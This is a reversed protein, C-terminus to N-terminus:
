VFGILAGSGLPSFPNVTRWMIAESRTIHTVGDDLVVTTGTLNAGSVVSTVTAKHAASPLLSGTTNIATMMTNKAMTKELRALIAEMTAKPTAPLSGKREEITRKLGPFIPNYCRWLAEMLGFFGAYALVQNRTESPVSDIPLYGLRRLIDRAPKYDWAAAEMIGHLAVLASDVAKGVDGGLVYCRVAESFRGDAAADNGSEIFSEPHRLGHQSYFAERGELCQACIKEMAIQDEGRCMKAMSMAIDPSNLSSCIEAAAEYFANPPPRQFILCLLQTMFYEGNVMLTQIAADLSGIALQCCAVKIPEGGIQYHRGLTGTVDTLVNRRQVQDAEGEGPITTTRAGPTSQNVYMAALQYADKMGNKLYFYVADEVQGSAMMHMACETDNEAKLKEAYRASLARWYELSSGPALALAKEWDDITLLQECCDEVRGMQLHLKAIERAQAEKKRGATRKRKQEAVLLELMMPTEEVRYIESPTESDIGQGSIMGIAIQLLERSGCPASFYKAVLPLREIVDREPGINAMLDNISVGCLKPRDGQVQPSTPDVTQLFRSTPLGALMAFQLDAVDDEMTWVRLTTDRSCSVFCFPREPSADLGYVDGCHDKVTRLCAGTRIDWIRISSDWSGTIALYPIAHSWHVARVNSTHGSLVVKCGGALYDYVRATRDDSSSLLLGREFPSWAVNFVKRSHGVMDIVLAKDGQNNSDVQFVRVHGDECGTALLNPVLPSWDCGYVIGPHSARWLVTGPKAGFPRVVTAHKDAGASAILNDDHKSWSVDYVKNERGHVDLTCTRHGKNADAIVLSGRSTSAVLQGKGDPNWSLGYLASGKEMEIDAVVKSTDINLVKVSGDFSCSAVQDANNPRFRCDFITESHGIEARWKWRKAQLDFIGTFGDRFTGVFDCSEPFFVLGSFPADHIKLVQVPKPDSMNWVRLQGATKSTSVFRGVQSPDWAISALQGSQKEFSCGSVEAMSAEELVLIRNNEHGILLYTWGSGSDHPAWALDVVPSEELNGDEDKEKHFDQRSLVKAGDLRLVIVQGATNGMALMGPKTPHWRLVNIRTGGCVNLVYSM